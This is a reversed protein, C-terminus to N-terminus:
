DSPDKDSVGSRELFKKLRKAERYDQIWRFPSLGYLAGRREYVRV